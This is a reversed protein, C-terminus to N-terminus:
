PTLATQIRKSLWAVDNRAFWKGLLVFGITVTFMGIGALPFWWTRVNGTVLPVTALCTWLVIFGFCFSLFAKTVGHMTYKGSLVVHDGQRVFSGIFFPKFSNQVFPIVRQLSVREATVKGIAAQEMTFLSYTKTHDRLRRISGDM